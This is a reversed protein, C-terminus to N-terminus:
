RWAKVYDVVYSAPLETAGTVANSGSAPGVAMTLVLNFPHDFPQPAVLPSDPAWSRRYCLKGDILFRMEAATWEVAYTHFVSVDPVNCHWGSDAWFDRGPYHLSPLVLDPDNSWWEAVDIEGSAPWAGYTMREPYMWFGAHLGPVQSAPYKARVEFRGYTQAFRGRTALHGGTYSTTFAGSPSQCTFPRSERRATLRLEGGRVTVNRDSDRLCTSGVQFGSWTTDGVLWKTTDLSRGDFGDVFTCQWTGGEAKPLLSGCADSGAAAAPAPGAPVGALQWAVAATCAFATAVLLRRARTSTRTM